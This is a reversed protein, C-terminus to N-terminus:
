RSDLISHAVMNGMGLRVNPSQASSKVQSNRSFGNSTTGFRGTKTAAPSSLTEMESATSLGGPVGGATKATRQLLEATKAVLANRGTGFLARVKGESPNPFLQEVLASRRFFRTQPSSMENARGKSYKINIADRGSEFFSFRSYFLNPDVLQTILDNIQKMAIKDHVPIAFFKPYSNKFILEVEIRLALVLMQMLFTHYMKQQGAYKTDLQSLITSISIFLQKMHYNDLPLENFHGFVNWYALHAILGIVKSTTQEQIEEYAATITLDTLKPVGQSM